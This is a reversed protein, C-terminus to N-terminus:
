ATAHEESADHEFNVAANLFDSRLRLLLPCSDAKPNENIGAALAPPEVM